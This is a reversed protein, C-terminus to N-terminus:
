GDKLKFEYPIQVKELTIPKGNKTAPRFTAKKLADIAADELGFGLNTLAKIDKAIGKEDITAELLVVGEKEAKKASEPYTPKVKIKYTPSVTRSEPTIDINAAGLAEDPLPTDLKDLVNPAERQRELVPAKNETEITPTPKVFSRDVDIAKLGEDPGPTSLDDTAEIDPIVFGQDSPLQNTDTRVRPRFVLQQQAQQAQNFKPTERRIFRRKTKVDETVISIDFTERENEIRDKIYFVSIIIAILIHFVMAVTFAASSRGVHKQTITHKPMNAQATSISRQQSTDLSVQKLAVFRKPKKREARRKRMQGLMGSTRSNM